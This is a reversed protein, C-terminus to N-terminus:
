PKSRLSHTWWGETDHQAARRLWEDEYLAAYLPRPLRRHGGFLTGAADLRKLAEECSPRAGALQLILEVSALVDRGHLLALLAPCPVGDAEALAELSAHVRGVEATFHTDLTHLSGASLRKAWWLPASAVEVPEGRLLAQMRRRISARSPRQLRQFQGVLCAQDWVKHSDLLPAVHQSLWPDDTDALWAHAELLPRLRPEVPRVRQLQLQSTHAAVLVGDQGDTLVLVSPTTRLDLWVLDPEQPDQQVGPRSTQDEGTTKLAQRHPRVQLASGSLAQLMLLEPTDGAYWLRIGAAEAAQSPLAQWPHLELAERWNEETLRDSTLRDSTLRDPTLRDPSPAFGFARGVRAVVLQEQEGVRELAAEALLAEITELETM